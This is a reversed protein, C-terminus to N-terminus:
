VDIALIFFGEEENRIKNASAKLARARISHAYIRQLQLMRKAQKIAVTNWKANTEDESLATKAKVNVFPLIRLCVYQVRTTDLLHMKEDNEKEITQSSQM